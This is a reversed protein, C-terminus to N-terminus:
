RTHTNHHHTHAHPPGHVVNGVPKEAHMADTHPQETVTSGKADHQRKRPSTSLTQDPPPEPKNPRALGRAATCSSAPMPPMCCVARPSIHLTAAGAAHKCGDTATRKNSGHRVPPCRRLWQQMVRQLERGVQSDAHAEIGRMHSTPEQDHQWQLQSVRMTHPEGSTTKTPQRGNASACGTTGCLLSHTAYM